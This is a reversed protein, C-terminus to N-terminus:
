KFIFLMITVIHYRTSVRRSIKRSNHILCTLAFTSMWVRRRSSRSLTSLYLEPFDRPLRFSVTPRIFDIRSCFLVTSVTAELVLRSNTEKSKTHNVSMNRLVVFHSLFLDLSHSVLRIYREWEWEQGVRAIEILTYVRCLLLCTLMWSIMYEHKCSM